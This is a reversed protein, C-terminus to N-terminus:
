RQEIGMSFLEDGRLFLQDWVDAWPRLQSKHFTWSRGIGSFRFGSDLYLPDSHESGIAVTHGIGRAQLAAIIDSILSMQAVKLQPHDPRREILEFANLLESLQLARTSEEILAYALVEGDVLAARVRRARHLGGKAFEEQLRHLSLSEARLDESQLRVPDETKGLLECLEVLEEFSADRLEVQPSPPLPPQTNERVYVGFQNLWSLGPQHIARGSWSFMRNTWKNAKLWVFKLHEANEQSEIHEAMSLCIARSIRGTAAITEGQLAALHTSLWTREYMRLGAVHGRFSDKARYLINVGVHRGPGLVQEQTRRVIAESEPSWDNYVHFNFGARHLFHWIDGSQGPLAVELQPYEDGVLGQGLLRRADDDLGQLVIGCHLQQGSSLDSENHEGDFPLAEESSFRPAPRLSRVEGRCVIRGGTPLELEIRPLVLGPPLVRDAKVVACLGSANVDYVELWGQPDKGELDKSEVPDLAADPPPVQPLVEEYTRDIAAGGYSQLISKPHIPEAAQHTFAEPRRAISHLVAHQEQSDTSQPLFAHEKPFTSGTQAAFALPSSPQPEPASFDPATASETSNTDEQRIGEQQELATSFRVRYSREPLPRHRHSDRRHFARLSAPAALILGDDTGLVASLGSYSLGHHEFSLHFVDHPRCGLPAKAFRLSGNSSLAPPGLNWRQDSEPHRAFFTTQASSLKQLLANLPLPDDLVHTKTALASPEAEFCLGVQIKGAGDGPSGEKRGCHRITARSARFVAQGQPNIIQVEKVTRGPSLGELSESAELEFCLGGSSLNVLSHLIERDDCNPLRAKLQFGQSQLAQRFSRRRSLLALTRQRVESAPRDIFLASFDPIDATSAASAALPGSCLLVKPTNPSITRLADLVAPIRALVSEDVLILQFRESELRRLANPLDSEEYIAVDPNAGTFSTRAAQGLGIALASSSEQM